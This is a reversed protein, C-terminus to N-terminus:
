SQPQTPLLSYVQGDILLRTIGKAQLHSRTKQLMRGDPVKIVRQSRNSFRRAVRHNDFVPLTREQIEEIPIRGLDGFEKLPRAILEAARDVVLYCTKPLSAESLPLVQVNAGRQVGSTGIPGQRGTDAAEDAWDDDLDDDLDEDEDDLDILDEDLLEELSSTESPEIEDFPEDLEDLGSEEVPTTVDLQLETQIAKQETVPKAVVSSRRRRWRQDTSTSESNDTQAEVPPEVPPNITQLDFVSQTESELSPLETIEPTPSSLTNPTRNSRKQQILAEYESEMLSSKLIRSITSNSVGYRSALTSTTEELQRYLSLIDSKDADSLKRPSM